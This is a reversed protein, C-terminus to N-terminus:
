TTRWSPEGGTVYLETFQEAVAEDVLSRFRDLGIRRRRARPSSAVSCYGCALNCDFNTYVWLRPPFMASAFLPLVPREDDPVVPAGGWSVGAGTFEPLASKYLQFRGRSREAPPVIELCTEWWGTEVTQAFAEPLGAARISRAQAAWDYDLALLSSRRIGRRWRGGALLYRRRSSARNEPRPWCNTICRRAVNGHSSPGLFGAGPLAGRQADDRVSGCRRSGAARVMAPWGSGGISWSM